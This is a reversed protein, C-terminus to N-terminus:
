EAILKLLGNGGEVLEKALETNKQIEEATVIKRNHSFSKAGIEYTNGDVKVVPKGKIVATNSIAENLDKIIADKEAIEKAQATAIKVLEEQTMEEFGSKSSSPKAPAAATNKNKSM